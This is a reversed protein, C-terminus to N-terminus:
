QVWRRIAVVMEGSLHSVPYRLLEKAIVEAAIRPESTPSPTVEPMEVAEWEPSDAADRLARAERYTTDPSVHGAEIARQLRDAPLRSLEFLTSYANPLSQRMEPEVTAFARTVAMLREAKDIGFPLSEAVWEMFRGPHQAKAALLEAGIDMAAVNLAQYIRQTREELPVVVRVEIPGQEALAM